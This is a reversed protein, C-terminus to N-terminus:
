PTDRPMGSGDVDHLRLAAVTGDTERAWSRALHEGHVQTAADVNRPDLPATAPVQGPLLDVGCVPCLPDFRDRKLDIVRRPPPRTTGHEPCAYPGEGYVVM